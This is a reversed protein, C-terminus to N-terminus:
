SPNMGHPTVTVVSLALGPFPPQGWRAGHRLRGTGPQAPAGQTSLRRMYRTDNFAPPVFVPQYQAGGWESRTASSRSAVREGAAACNEFDQLVLPKLASTPYLACQTPSVANFPSCKGVM